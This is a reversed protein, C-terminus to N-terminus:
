PCRDFLETKIKGFLNVILQDVFALGAKSM